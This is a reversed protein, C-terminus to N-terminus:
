YKQWRSNKIVIASLCSLTQTHNLCRRHVFVVFTRLHLKDVRLFLLLRSHHPFSQASTPLRVECTQALMNESGDHESCSSSWQNRVIVSQNLEGPMRCTHAGLCCISPNSKWFLVPNFRWCHLELFLAFQGTLFRMEGRRKKEKSGSWNWCKGSPFSWRLESNVSFAALIQWHPEQTGHQHQTALTNASATISPILEKTATRQSRLSSSKSLM